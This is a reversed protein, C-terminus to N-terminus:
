TILSKASDKLWLIARLSSAGVWGLGALDSVPWHIPRFDIFDDGLLRHLQDAIQSVFMDIGVCVELYDGCVDNVAGGLKGLLATRRMSMREVSGRVGGSGPM